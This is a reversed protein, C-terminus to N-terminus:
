VKSLDLVVVVVATAFNQPTLAAEFLSTLSTGGAISANILLIFMFLVSRGLTSCMEPRIQASSRSEERMTTNWQLLPRSQKWQNMILTM